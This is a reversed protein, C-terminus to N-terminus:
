GGTTANNKRSDILYNGVAVVLMIGNLVVFMDLVWSNM